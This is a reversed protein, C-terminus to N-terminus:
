RPSHSDPWRVLPSPNSNPPWIYGM